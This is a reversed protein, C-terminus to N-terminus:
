MAEDPPGFHFFSQDCQQQKGDGERTAYDLRTTAITIVGISVATMSLKM